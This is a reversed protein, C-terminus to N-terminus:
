NMNTIEIISTYRLHVIASQLQSQLYFTQINTYLVLTVLHSVLDKDFPLIQNLNSEFIVWKGQVSANAVSLNGFRSDEM